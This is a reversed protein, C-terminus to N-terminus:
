IKLSMSRSVREALTDGRNLHWHDKNCKEAINIADAENRHSSVIDGSQGGIRVKWRTNGARDSETYVRFDNKIKNSM